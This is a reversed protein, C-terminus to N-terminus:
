ESPILFGCGSAAREISTEWVFVLLGQEEPFEIRRTNAEIYNAVEDTIFARQRWSGARLVILGSAFCSQVLEM